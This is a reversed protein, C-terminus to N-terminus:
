KKGILDNLDFSELEDQLRKVETELNKTLEVPPEIGHEKLKHLIVEMKKFM